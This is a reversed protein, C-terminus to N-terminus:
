LSRVRATADIGAGAVRVRRDELTIRGDALARVVAPLLRHEETLIRQGLTQETDGDLVPVVAQAIIPGSDTGDDVFHVTCGSFKVGQNLAQRQPHLGPFAPLLAPHINILDVGRGFVPAPAGPRHSFTRLFDPTLIRMFGALVILEVRAEQLRAALARDFEARSPFTKHDLVFSPVGAREARALAGCGPVNAGVVVIRAPGLEGRASADLLAQLNSGSGSVLVAVNM